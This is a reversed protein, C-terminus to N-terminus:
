TETEKSPWRLVAKAPLPFCATGAVWSEDDERPCDPSGDGLLVHFKPRDGAQFSWEYRGRIWVPDPDTAACRVTGWALALELTTGAHVPRGALYHRPGSDEDVLRLEDGWLRM